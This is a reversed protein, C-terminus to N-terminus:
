FSGVKATMAGWDTFRYKGPRLLYQATIIFSRIFDNFDMWHQYDPYEGKRLFYHGIYNPHEYIIWCGTEVKVSDCCNLCVCLDPQDTTAECSCGEFSRDEFFAIMAM